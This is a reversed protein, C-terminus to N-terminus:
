ACILEPRVGMRELDSRIEERYVPNMVIVVDPQYDRLVTPDVIKQGTRPVYHGQKHPNIDVVCPIEEKAKLINLFTVGRSGAGWLAVHQRHERMEKLIELWQGIKSQYGAGLAAVDESLEPLGTAPHWASRAATKRSTAEVCLFQSDFDEYLDNISFGAASFAKALSMPSFYSCHEYVLDWIRVDKVMTLANPVEFYLVAKENDGVTQRLHHLFIVPYQIHELVHRCCILDGKYDAYKETYFDHFFVIREKLKNDVRDPEYTPDFGYGRNNGKECLLMLFDGKGCGIDIVTSNRIDYKDILRLALSEAYRNFHPSFHLSNEYKQDYEVLKPDFAPNFVHGCDQCFALRIHATPAQIAENYTRWQVTCRVPIDRIHISTTVNRATCM